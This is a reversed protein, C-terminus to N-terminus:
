FRRAKGSPVSRLNMTARASVSKTSGRDTVRCHHPKAIVKLLSVVASDESQAEQLQSSREFKSNLPHTPFAQLTLADTESTASQKDEATSIVGAASSTHRVIIGVRAPTRDGPFVRVSHKQYTDSCCSCVQTETLNLESLTKQATSGERM